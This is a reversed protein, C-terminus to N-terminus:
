RMAGIPQMRFRKLLAYIRKKMYEPGRESLRSYVDPHYKRLCSQCHVAYFNGRKEPRRVGRLVRMTYRPYEDEYKIIVADTEPVAKGCHHCIYINEGAFVTETTRLGFLSGVALIAALVLLVIEKIIIGFILLMVGIMAVALAAPNLKSIKQRGIYVSKPPLNTTEDIVLKELFDVTEYDKRDIPYEQVRTYNMAILNVSEEVDTMPATPRRPGAYRTPRRAQRRAAM